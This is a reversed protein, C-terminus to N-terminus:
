TKTNGMLISGQLIGKNTGKRSGIFLFVNKTTNKDFIFVKQFYAQKIMEGDQFVSNNEVISSRLTLLGTEQLKTDFM